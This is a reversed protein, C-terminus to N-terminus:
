QVYQYEKAMKRKYRIAAIACHNGVPYVLYIDYIIRVRDSLIFCDGFFMNMSTSIIIMIIVIISFMIMMRLKMLMMMM